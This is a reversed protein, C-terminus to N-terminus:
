TGLGDGERRTHLHPELFSCPGQSMAAPCCVLFLVSPPFLSLLPARSACGVRCLDEPGTWCRSSVWVKLVARSPAWPKLPHPTGSHISLQCPVVETNGEKELIKESPKGKGELGPRAPKLYFAGWMGKGSRVM